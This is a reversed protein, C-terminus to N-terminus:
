RSYRRYIYDGPVLGAKAPNEAIYKRLYDYQEPSRVLHDFPEQQWFHGNEGVARNIRVATFHLWSDFQAEMSEPSGFAALLHVHNPIVVFDGMRYRDGDFHLLSDSVIEALEPKLLLCQGHCTDLFDERCGNFTQQFENRTDGDLTPVIQHWVRGDRLGRRDLWDNKERERRILVERHISDKTRFTVFVIAGAQSWHPRMRENVFFEAQADFVEGIMETDAQYDSIAGRDTGLFFLSLFVSVGGIIINPQGFEVDCICNLYTAL